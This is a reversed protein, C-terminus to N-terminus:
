HMTLAAGLLLLGAVILLADMLLRFQSADLRLVFGKAVWSGLM